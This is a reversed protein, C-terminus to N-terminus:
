VSARVKVKKLKQLQLILKKSVEMSIVVILEQFLKNQFDGEFILLFKKKSKFRNQFTKLKV